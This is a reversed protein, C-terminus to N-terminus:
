RFLAKISGWTRKVGSIGNNHLVSMEKSYSLSGDKDVIEIRYKYVQDNTKFATQDTYEYNM